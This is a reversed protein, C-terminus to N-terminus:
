VSEDKLLRTLVVFSNGLKWLACTIGGSIVGSILAVIALIHEFAVAFNVEDCFFIPERITQTSIFKKSESVLTTSYRKKVKL